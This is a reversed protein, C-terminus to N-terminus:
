SKFRHPAILQLAQYGADVEAQAVATLALDVTEVVGAKCGRGRGPWITNGAPTFGYACVCARVCVAVASLSTLSPAAAAAATMSTSKFFQSALTCERTRSYQKWM